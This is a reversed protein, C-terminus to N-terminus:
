DGLDLEVQLRQLRKRPVRAFLVAQAPRHLVAGGGEGGVSEAMERLALRHLNVEGGVELGDDEVMGPERGIQLLLDVGPHFRLALVLPLLPVGFLLEDVLAALLRDTGELPPQPIQRLRNPGRDAGIELAGKGEEELLQRHLVRPVRDGAEHLGRLLRVARGGGDRGVVGLRALSRAGPRPPRREGPARRRRRPPSTRRPCAPRQGAGPAPSRAPRAAPGARPRASGAAPPPAAERRAPRPPRDGRTLAPPPHCSDAPPTTRRVRSAAKSSLTGNRALASENSKSSVAM